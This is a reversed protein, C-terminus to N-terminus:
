GGREEEAPGSLIGGHRVERPFPTHSRVATELGGVLGLLYQINELCWAPVGEEVDVINEEIVEIKQRDRKTLM